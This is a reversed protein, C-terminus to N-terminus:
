VRLANWIQKPTPLKGYLLMGIRYIKGAVYFCAAVLFANLLIALVIQWVPVVSIAIRTFMVFPSIFPVFSAVVAFPADPEVLAYQAIFFAGVVPLIVPTTVMGLDETRSILSAAAAYLTAYQLYGFVFFLAFAVLVGPDILNPGASAAAGAGSGLADSASATGGAAEAGGATFISHPLVLAAGAVWIAIQLIALGAAALTKGTLLNIPSITAVLIEAIRSTKEEAVASMVSQSAIIIAFYLVFVLGFAIGRAFTASHADAFRKELPHLSRDIRTVNETQAATAGTALEVNLPILNRFQVEDFVAADRPYVDLHLRKNRESVLVAAAAKQHAELYSLSMPQPLQETQYVIHFDHHRQLLTAVRARLPEPGALIIYDASSKAVHTIFTPIMVMVGISFVGALTALLFIRSRVKRMFEVSFVIAIENV